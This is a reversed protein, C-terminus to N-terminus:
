DDEDEDKDGGAKESGTDAAEDENAGEEAPSCALTSGALALIAVAITLKRM